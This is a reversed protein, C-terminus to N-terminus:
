KLCQIKEWFLIIFVGMFLGSGGLWRAAFGSLFLFRQVKLEIRPAALTKTVTSGASLPQFTLWLWVTGEFVGATKGSATWWFTVTRGKPLVQGTTLNPDIALGPMDLSTEVFINYREAANFLDVPIDPATQAAFTLRVQVPDGARAWTPYSLTMVRQELVAANVAQSDPVTMVEPSFELSHETVAPVWSGWVLGFLGFVAILLGSGFQKSKMRKM